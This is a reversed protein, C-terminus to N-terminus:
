SSWWWKIITQQHTALFHFYAFFFKVKNCNLSLKFCGNPCFVVCLPLPVFPFKHGQNLPHLLFFGSSFLLHHWYKLFFAALTFIGRRNCAIQPFMQFHVTSFLGVCAIFTIKCGRPCIMQPLMQLYVTSFFWISAVLTVKCGGICSSQFCMQFYVTSFLWVFAVLTVICRRPCAIQPSMQICVTSFLWVFAVLTVISWQPCSFQPPM